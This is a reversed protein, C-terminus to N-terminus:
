HLTEEARNQHHADGQRRRTRPGLAIRLVFFDHTRKQRLPTKLTVPCLELLGIQPEIGQRQIQMVLVHQQRPLIDHIHQIQSQHRRVFFRLGLQRLQLRHDIPNRGRELRTVVALLARAPLRHQATEVALLVAIGHPIQQMQVHRHEIGRLRKRLVVFFVAKVVDALREHHRPKQHLFIEIGRIM